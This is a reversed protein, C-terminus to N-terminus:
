LGRVFAAFQRAMRDHMAQNPHVTDPLFNAAQDEGMGTNISFDCVPAAYREGLAFIADRVAAMGTNFTGPPMLWLSPPTCLAIQADPKEAILAQLVRNYAGYFTEPTTSAITGLTGDRDNHAHDFIYLDADKGLVKVEYSQAPDHGATTLEAQTAALSLGTWGPFAGNWMIRSSGVAENDLDAGLDVALAKYVFGQRVGGVVSASYGETISTGVVVIKKGTWYSGGIPSGNVTLTSADLRPIYRTGDAREAYAVRGATDTEVYVVPHGDVELAAGDTLTGRMDTFRETVLLRPLHRTGDLKTGDSLRDDADLDATAYVEGDVEYAPATVPMGPDTTRAITPVDVDTELADIAAHAGPDYGTPVAVWVAAVGPEDAATAAGTAYWGGGSHRVVALATYDTATWDGEDHFTGSLILDDVQAQLPDVEAAIKADLASATESAPNNIETAIIDDAVEIGSIDEALAASAAAATASGAAAVASGAAAAQSAAADEAAADAAAVAAWATQTLTVETLVIEALTTDATLEFWGTEIPTDARGHGRDLFYGKIRLGQVEPVWGQGPGTAPLGAVTFSGDNNFAIPYTGLRTTDTATESHLGGWAEVYARVSKPASTLSTGGVLDHVTGSLTHTTAM